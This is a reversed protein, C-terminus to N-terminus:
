RASLLRAAIGAVTRRAYAQSPSDATLIALSLRDEGRELLAVQHTLGKRWGGKFYTRFGHRAAVQPIGWRQEPVVGRLLARAYSRHRPPVIADLRLFFRAQDAADIRASFLSTVAFRRMRAARAVDYLAPRGVLAYIARASRNSSERIMPTLRRREGPPVPRAGARRLAAALLMAKVVSASAFGETRRLGRLGSGVEGVCFAM